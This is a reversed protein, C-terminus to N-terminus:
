RSRKKKLQKYEYGSRAASVRGGIKKGIYQGAYAGGYGLVMNLPLVGVTDVFKGLKNLKGGDYKIKSTLLGAAISAGTGLLSASFGGITGGRKEARKFDRAAKKMRSSEESRAGKLTNTSLNSAIRKTGKKGYLTLDENYQKETKKHRKYTDLTANRKANRHGGNWEWFEM